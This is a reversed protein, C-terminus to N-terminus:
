QRFLEATGRDHIRDQMSVIMSTVDAAQYTGGRSPDQEPLCRRQLENGHATVEVIPNAVIEGSEEVLGNALGAVPLNKDHRASAM